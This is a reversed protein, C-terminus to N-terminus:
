SGRSRCNRVCKKGVLREEWRAAGGGAEGVTGLQEALVAASRGAVAMCVRDPADTEDGIGGTRYGGRSAERGEALLDVGGPVVRRGVAEGPLSEVGLGAQVVQPRPLVSGLGAPECAHVPEGADELVRDGTM